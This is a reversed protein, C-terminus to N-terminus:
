SLPRTRSSAFCSKTEQYGKMGTLLEMIIVGLAYLDFQYSIEGKTAFEPALYGLSGSTNVTIAGTQRGRFCRSLCFGSIKPAMNGDLLVNNPKLDMHVIRNQHLYYLGQIIEKIIKYRARWELGCSADRIYDSLTGNPLYEFCLLREQVDAFVFQGEYTEAVAKTENCYGLFRIINKHRAKMLCEVERHFQKEYMHTKSKKMVVVTGSLLIGKYFVGFGDNDIERDDSFGNTIDQLLSLSLNAPEASEDLLIRELESAMFSRQMTRSSSGDTETSQETSGLIDDHRDSTHGVDPTQEEGAETHVHVQGLQIDERSNELGTTHLSELVQAVSTSAVGTSAISGYTIEVEQLRDIVNQPDPRKAPNFEICEVAIEACVRLQELQKQGESKDLRNRWNELVNEVKTYGKEGTLLETIIVGLSYMDMKMTIKGGFFEPALYGLSGVLTTITAQLQNEGFCRSLGFDAIKPVLSENLLVNAPKLDLHVIHNQHLYHLGETIGKIIEFRTRWELGCSADTIHDYLSGNPLYEFCLLRQQVDAMVFDGNYMEMNGQTDACYGLFRVINRHKIKMLCQVERHFEKEQLHSRSLRKVAIAANELIGKYVVAFGGRGIELEDSFGNTVEELVLLSLAKPGENEASLMRELYSRTIAQRDM